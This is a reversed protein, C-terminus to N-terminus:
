LYGLAKLQEVTEPDQELDGLWKGLSYLNHMDGQWWDLLNRAPGVAEKANWAFGRSELADDAVEYRMYRPPKGPGPVHVVWKSDGDVVGKWLGSSAAMQSEFFVPRAPRERYLSVGDLGAPAKQGIAALLTPAVDVISVPTEYRGQEIGPGRFALPVRVVDEYVDYGHSFWYEHDTLCEGHDATLAYFTRDPSTRHELEKLLRGIHFDAYAIEEDYLDVYELGDTIEPYRQYEPVRAPDIRNEGEHSFERVVPEPPAYPGHPDMYHVWLFFPRSSDARADIWALAADTVSDAVREVHSKRFREQKTMTDDYHDFHAALGISKDRLNVNSVFAASEYGLKKLTAPLSGIYDDIKQGFFRVGHSQPYLGTLFSVVSPPTFSTTAYAREYVAGEEFWADVNPTTARDYGYMGMHDTRITDITVLVINPCCEPVYSKCSAVCFSGVLLLAVGFPPYMTAACRHVSDRIRRVFAARM